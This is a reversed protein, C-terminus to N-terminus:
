NFYRFTEFGVLHGVGVGKSIMNNLGDAALFSLCLSLPDGRRVGRRCEFYDTLKENVLVYGQGEGGGGCFLKKM